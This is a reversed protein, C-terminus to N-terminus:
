ENYYRQWCGVWSTSTTDTTSDSTLPEIKNLIINIITPLLFVLVAYLFRKISKEFAEKKEKDDANPSAVVKVLDITIMVILIIPIIKLDDISNANELLYDGVRTRKLEEMTMPINLKEGIDNILSRIYTGSSVNVKFTFNDKNFELLSIDSIKVLHKPLDVELNNRAYEYLKKGNVKISSYIPVTQYYEGIFSNLVNELTDKDLNFNNNEEVVKGTIDYTDTKIGVRVKAVYEKDHKTLLEVLKLGEGVCLIMLGTAIPDLTGTHGVRRTNLRKCVMNVVDRSTLGKEKNILIIGDM